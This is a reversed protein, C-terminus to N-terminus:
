FVSSQGQQSQNSSANICSKKGFLVFYVIGAVSCTYIYVYRKDMANMYEFVSVLSAIMFFVAFCFLLKRSLSSSAIRNITRTLFIAIPLMLFVFAMAISFDYNSRLNLVDRVFDFKGLVFGALPFAPVWAIVSACFGIIKSTFSVLPSRMLFDYYHLGVTLLGLYSFLTLAHMLYRSAFESFDGLIPRCFQDFQFHVRNSM